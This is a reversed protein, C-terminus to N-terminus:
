VILIILFGWFGIRSILARVNPFFRGFPVFLIRKARNSRSKQPSPKCAKGLADYGVRHGWFSKLNHGWLHM